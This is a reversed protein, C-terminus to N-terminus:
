VILHSLESEIQVFESRLPQIFESSDPMDGANAQTELNAAQASLRHGGLNASCSKLSHAHRSFAEIDGESFSRALASLIEEGSEIFIPILDNFDEGMDEKLRNFAVHDIATSYNEPM